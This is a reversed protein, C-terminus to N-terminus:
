FTYTVNSNFGSMTLYGEQRQENGNSYVYTKFDVRQSLITYGASLTLNKTFRAGLGAQLGVAPKFMDKDRSPSTLFAVNFGAYGTLYQQFGYTLNGSPVFFATKEDGAESKNFSELYSAIANFGFGTDPTQNYGVRIGTMGLHTHLNVKQSNMELRVNTINMYEAGVTIGKQAHGIQFKDISTSLGNETQTETQAFAATTMLAALLVILSHKM